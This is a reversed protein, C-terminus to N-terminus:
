IKFNSLTGQITSTVNQFLEPKFYYIGGVIAAVALLIAGVIM